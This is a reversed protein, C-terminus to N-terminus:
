VNKHYWFAKRLCKLIRVAVENYETTRQIRIGDIVPKHIKPMTPNYLTDWKLHTEYEIM